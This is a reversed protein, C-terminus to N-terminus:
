QRGDPAVLAVYSSGFLQQTSGLFQRRMGVGHPPHSEDQALPLLLDGVVLCEDIRRCRTPQAIGGLAEVVGSYQLLDDACALVIGSIWHDLQLYGYAQGTATAVLSGTFAQPM